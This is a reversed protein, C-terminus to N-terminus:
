SNISRDALDAILCSVMNDFNKSGSAMVPVKGSTVGLIRGGIEKSAALLQMADGKIGWCCTERSCPRAIM